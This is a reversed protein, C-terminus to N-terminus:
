TAYEQHDRSLRAAADVVVGVQTARQRSTNTSSVSGAAYPLSSPQEAASATHLQRSV